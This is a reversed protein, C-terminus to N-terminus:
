SHKFYIDGIKGLSPDPITTGDYITFPGNDAGTASPDRMYKNPDQEQEIVQWETTFTGDSNMTVTLSYPKDYEALYTEPVPIEFGGTSNNEAGIILSGKLILRGDTTLASLNARNSTSSGYGVIDYLNSGSINYKGQAHAGPLNPTLTGVGEAHTGKANGASTLEGEAHSSEGLAKSQNGEAHSYKGSATTANGEALSYIGSAINSDVNNIKVGKTTDDTREIYPKNIISGESGEPYEWDVLAHAGSLEWRINTGELTPVYKETSMLGVPVPITYGGYSNDDAGITVGGKLILRGDATLAELNKRNTNNSGWGVVDIFNGDNSSANFRGQVHSGDVNPTITGIGEAHSYRGVTKTEYGEAHSYDGEATNYGGEVHAATGSVSNSVGEAFSYNGSAVNSVIDNAKVAFRDHDDGLTLSPKNEIFGQEGESSLWNSLSAGPTYDIGNKIIKPM